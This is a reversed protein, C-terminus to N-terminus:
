YKGREEQHMSQSFKELSKFQRSLMERDEQLAYNLLNIVGNVKDAALSDLQEVTIEGKACAFKITSFYDVVDYIAKQALGRQRAAENQEFQQQEKRMLREKEQLLHEERQRAAENQEFQQQEKRMLREKEQLLYEERKVLNKKENLMERQEYDTM